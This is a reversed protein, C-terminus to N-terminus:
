ISGQGQYKQFTDRYAEWKWRSIKEFTHRRRPLFCEICWWKPGRYAEWQYQSVKASSNPDPTAPVVDGGGKGKRERM